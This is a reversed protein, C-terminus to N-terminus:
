GKADRIAAGVLIIDSSPRRPAPVSPCPLVPVSLAALDACPLPQVGGDPTQVQCYTLFTRDAESSAVVLLAIAAGVIMHRMAIQQMAASIAARAQSQYSM